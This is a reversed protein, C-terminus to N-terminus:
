EAKLGYRKKNKGGLMDGCKEYFKILNKISRPILNQNLFFVNFPFFSIKGINKNSIIRDVGHNLAGNFFIISGRGSLDDLNIKKGENDIIYTGGEDYHEGKYTLNFIMWLMLDSDFVDKHESLIGNTPPYYNVSLTLASKKQSYLLGENEDRDLCLNQYKHMEIVISRTTEHMENWLFEQRKLRYDSKKTSSAFFNEEGLRLLLSRYYKLAEEKRINIFQDIWYKELERTTEYEIVNNCILFGNKKVHNITDKPDPLKSRDILKM